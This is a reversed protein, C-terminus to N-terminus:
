DAVLDHRKRWHTLLISFVILGPLFVVVGAGLHLTSALYSPLRDALPIAATALLIRSTNLLLTLAFALGVALALRTARRRGGPGPALIGVAVALAVILFTLGACEPTVRSWGFRTELLPWGTSTERHLPCQLSVSALWAAPEALLRMRLSETWAPPLFLVAALLPAPLLRFLSSMLSQM